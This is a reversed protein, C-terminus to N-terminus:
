LCSQHPIHLMGRNVLLAISDQALLLTKRLLRCKKGLCILRVLPPLLYLVEQTVLAAQVLAILAVHLVKSRVM